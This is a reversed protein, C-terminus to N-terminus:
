YNLYTSIDQPNKKEIGNKKEVWSRFENIGAWPIM